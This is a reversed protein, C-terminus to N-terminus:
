THNDQHLQELLGSFLAARQPQDHETAHDRQRQITPLFEITTAFHICTECISEFHCDLESPRTCYGNGLMRTHEARLLRMNPGEVDGPLQNTYLTEIQDTVAFYEDAVTRDAIRAYTMTMELTKHGLLAAVAELRMGRNIAQTALTHRLQHPHVHGVGAAKAVRRVMRTIRHRDVASTKDALLVGHTSIHERNTEQHRTIDDILHPHLPIYRDNRLKGVPIRLWHCDGIQVVPDPDLACLEGVRMGTRALLLVCLRRFPDAEDYAARMFRAAQADDLFKPLPEPRPPMDGLLLPNRRPAQPWDWEIIRDFFVKLLRLHQRITNAALRKGTTVSVCGALHLKYDEVVDRSVDSISRVPPDQEALFGCFQRLALDAARISAPQLSVTAQDLYRFVVDVAGPVVASIDAWPGHISSTLPAPSTM